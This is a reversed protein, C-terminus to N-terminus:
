EAAHSPVERRDIVRQIETEAARLRTAVDAGRAIDRLAGAFRQTLTAYHPTRPRPRAFNELQDRFLRYPLEAYEPFAAFASGRAPVAGNARVIPEVGHRADTVWRVWLAALEIDSAASSVTWCWSGCPAVPKSGLRPLPMVGLREGKAAVHSRAMWHGSWDMATSDNGFPDPDVPDTAAYGETFLTQWARLSERNAESALVGRVTHGNS